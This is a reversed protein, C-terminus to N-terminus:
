LQSLTTTLHMILRPLADPSTADFETISFSRKDEHSPLFYLEFSNQFVEVEVTGGRWFFRVTPSYGSVASEPFLNAAKTAKLLETAHLIATDDPTQNDSWEWDICKWVLDM